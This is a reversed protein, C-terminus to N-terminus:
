QEKGTRHFGTSMVVDAATRTRMHESMKSVNRRKLCLCDSSGSKEDPLLSERRSFEDWNISSSEEQGCTQVNM